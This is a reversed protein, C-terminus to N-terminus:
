CLSIEVAPLIKRLYVLLIMELEELKRTATSTFNEYNGYKEYYM